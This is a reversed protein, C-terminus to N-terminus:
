RTAKENIQLRCALKVFASLKSTLIAHARSFVHHRINMEDGAIGPIDGDTLYARVLHVVAQLKCLGLLM